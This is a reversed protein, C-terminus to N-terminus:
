AKIGCTGLTASAITPLLGVPMEVRLADSCLPTSDLLLPLAAM